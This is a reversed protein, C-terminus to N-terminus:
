NENQTETTQTKKATRQRDSEQEIFRIQKIKLQYTPKVYRIKAYKLRISYLIVYVLFTPWHWTMAARGFIPPARQEVGCLKASAWYQFATCYRQWCAFGMSIQLPAGFM